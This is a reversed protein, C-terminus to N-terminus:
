HMQFQISRSPPRIGYTTISYLSRLCIMPLWCVHTSSSGVFSLVGIANWRMTVRVGENPPVIPIHGPRNCTWLCDLLPTINQNCNLLHAHPDMPRKNKMATERIGQSDFYLFLSLRTREDFGVLLTIKLYLFMFQCLYAVM